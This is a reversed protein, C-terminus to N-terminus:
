NSFVHIRNLLMWPWCTFSLSVSNWFVINKIWFTSISHTELDDQSSDQRSLAGKKRGAKKKWRHLHSAPVTSCLVCLPVTQKHSVVIPNLLTRSLEWGPLLFQPNGKLEEEGRRSLPHLLDKTFPINELSCFVWRQVNQFPQFDPKSTSPKGTDYLYTFTVFYLHSNPTIPPHYFVQKSPM